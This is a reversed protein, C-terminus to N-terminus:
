LIEFVKHLGINSCIIILSERHGRHVHYRRITCYFYLTLVLQLFLRPFSCLEKLAAAIDVPGSNPTFVLHMRIPGYTPWTSYQQISCPVQFKRLIFCLSDLSCYPTKKFGPAQCQGYLCLCWPSVYTTTAWSSKIALSFAIKRSFV